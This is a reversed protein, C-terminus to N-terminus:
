LSRNSGCITTQRLEGDVKYVIVIRKKLSRKFHRHIVRAEILDGNCLSLLKDVKVIQKENLNRYKSLQHMINVM